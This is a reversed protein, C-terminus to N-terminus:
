VTRGCVLTRASPTKSSQVPRWAGGSHPGCGRSSFAFDPQASTALGHGLSAERGLHLHAGQPEHCFGRGSGGAAGNLRHRVWPLRTQLFRRGDQSRRRSTSGGRGRNFRFFSRDCPRAKDVSLNEVTPTTPQKPVGEGVRTGEQQHWCTM